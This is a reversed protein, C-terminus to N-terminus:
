LHQTEPQQMEMYQVEPLQMEMYQMEPQQMEMYQMGPEQMEVYQMEPQQMEPQLMGQQLMEPQQMGQQLMEPQQMGQQLMQLYYMQGPYMQPYMMGAPIMQPQVMQGQYMQSYMQGDPGMIFQDHNVNSDESAKKKRSKKCCCKCCILCIIVFVFLFPFVMVPIAVYLQKCTSECELKIYSCLTCLYGTYGEWFKDAIDRVKEQIHDLTYANKESTINAEAITVAFQLIFLQYIGILKVFKTRVNNYSCILFSNFLNCALENSSCRPNINKLKKRDGWYIDRKQICPQSSKCYVLEHFCTKYRKSSENCEEKNKEM